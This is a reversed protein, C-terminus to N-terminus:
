NHSITQETGATKWLFHSCMNINVVLMLQICHNCNRSYSVGHGLKKQLICLRHYLIEVLINHIVHSEVTYQRHTRALATIEARRARYKTDKFGPHDSDLEAGYELTKDAFSDLDAKKM